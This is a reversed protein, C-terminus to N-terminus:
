ELWRNELRYFGYICGIILMIWAIWFFIVGINSEVGKMTAEIDSGNYFNVDAITNDKLNAFITGTYKIPSGYYVYRVYYSEKQTDIHNEHPTYIQGYDFQVGLFTVKECHKSWSDVKDWTWYTETHEETNGDSDTTTYTRTHMTYHEEVKEVSMYEGGIEPYTVTDAAILEGYVLANGVNTRMGYEFLEQDTIKAAKNYKEVQDLHSETIKGSILIGILLMVAIISISAIIERKTIEFM